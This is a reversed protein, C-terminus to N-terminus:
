TKIQPNQDLFKKLSTSQKERASVFAPRSTMRRLYDATQATYKEAIPTGDALKLNASQALFLAYAICIDAITFKKGVLFERGDELSKDLMRLRALYWKAYDNAAVDCKGPELKSYRLTITQPFTLTADAHAIWNLYDGYGPSNPEVVLDKAEFKSALYQCIACSETMSVEADKLYPITGLPNTKLYDKYFYRPPFPMTILNYDTDGIEELTWLCRLSRADASHWLTIGGARAAGSLQRKTPALRACM